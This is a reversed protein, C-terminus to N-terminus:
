FLSDLSRVKTDKPVYVQHNMSRIASEAKALDPDNLARTVEGPAIEKSYANVWNVVAAPNNMAILLALQNLKEESEYMNKLLKEYEAQNTMTTALVSLRECRSVRQIDMTQSASAATQLLTKNWAIDGLNVTLVTAPIPINTGKISFNTGQYAVIPKCEQLCVYQGNPRQVQYCAHGGSCATLFATGLLVSLILAAIRKM